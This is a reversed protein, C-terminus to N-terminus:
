MFFTLGFTFNKLDRQKPSKEFIDSSYYKAFLGFDGIGARIFGGYQFPTFNYDDKYKQKGLEESKVRQTGKLLVGAIPGFALKLRKGNEMPNSRIEYTLPIRLYTSTLINKQFNVENRDLTVYTLPASNKDLLINGKLRTYNWEFGTSVYIRNKDNLRVGFQLVDFGFNTAKGRKYNLFENEESLNFSGQDIMRSFGWDIRSFTIGYFTRPYKSVKKQQNDNKGLSFDIDISRTKSSDKQLVETETHQAQAFLVATGMVVTLFATKLMNTSYTKM